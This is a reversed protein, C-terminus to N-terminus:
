FQFKFIHATLIINKVILKQRALKNKLICYNVKKYKTNIKKKISYDKNFQIIFYFHLIFNLQFIVIILILFLLFQYFLTLDYSNKLLPM